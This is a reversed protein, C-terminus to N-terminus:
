QWYSEACSNYESFFVEYNAGTLTKVPPYYMSLGSLILLSICDFFLKYCTCICSTSEQFYAPGPIVAWFLCRARPANCQPTNDGLMWMCSQTLGNPGYFLERRIEPPMFLLGSCELHVIVSSLLKVELSVTQWFWATKRRMWKRCVLSHNCFSWVAWSLHCLRVKWRWLTVIDEWSLLQICDNRCFSSATQYKMALQM